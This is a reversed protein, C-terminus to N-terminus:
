GLATLSRPRRWFQWLRRRTLLFEVPTQDRGDGCLRLTELTGSRLAALAPALWDCELASLAERWRLIDHGRAPRTLRADCALVHGAAPEFRERGPLCDIGACRCLGAVVRDNSWAATFETKVSAPVVGGGWPWLSAVGALGHAVRARNVPHAHLLTQAEAIRQRWRKGKNGGPLSPDVPLSIAEPLPRTELDPPDQLTLEWTHPSSATLEGWDSFLPRLVDLLATAEDTTLALDAPDALRIGERTIDFAVPDLCLAYATDRAGVKRLAAVPLPPTLGFAEAMFDGVQVRRKARGLLLALAQAQLDFLADSRLAPPLVLDPVWLTLQM